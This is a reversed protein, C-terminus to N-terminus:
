AGEGHRTRKHRELNWRRGSFSYGCCKTEAAQLKVKKEGKEDEADGDSSSKEDGKRKERNERRESKDRKKCSESKHKDAAEATKFATFCDDCRHPICAQALDKHFGVIHNVMSYHDGRQVGCEPCVRSKSKVADNFKKM